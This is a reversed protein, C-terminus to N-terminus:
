RVGLVEPSVVQHAAACVVTYEPHDVELLLFSHRADLVQARANEPTLWM